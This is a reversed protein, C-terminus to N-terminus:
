RTLWRLRHHVANCFRQTWLLRSLERLRTCRENSPRGEAISPQALSSSMQAGAPQEIGNQAGSQLTLRRVGLGGLGFATSRQGNRALLRDRTSCSHM